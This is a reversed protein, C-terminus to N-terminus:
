LRFSKVFSIINKTTVAVVLGRTRLLLGRLEVVEVRDPLNVLLLFYVIKVLIGKKVHCCRVTVKLQVPYDFPSRFNLIFVLSTLKLTRDWGRFYLM